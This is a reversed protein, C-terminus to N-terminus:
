VSKPEEARSMSILRFRTKRQQLIRVRSRERFANRIISAIVALVAAALCSLAAMTTFGMTLAQVPVEARDLMRVDGHETPMLGEIKRRGSLLSANIDSSIQKDRTVSLLEREAAAISKRRGEVQALNRQLDAIQRNVAVMSPHQDLFRSSLELRKQEADALKSQLGQAQQSLSRSEEALDATGYRRLVQDYRNDLQRLRQQSEELQRDYLSMVKSADDSKEALHQRMYETGIENLIRSLLEPNSGQLAVRIVNSQKGNEAVVLSHQLREVAQYVPLRRVTFQAGPRARSQSVLVRINGYRTAANVTQGVMGGIGIGTEKQTLAYRGGSVMTLVFPQKLLAGPVDFVAVRLRETGAGAEALAAPDADKRLDRDLIAGIVPLTKPEVVIDLQLRQVVRSLIARSRLIEMETTAPTDQQPSEAAAVSNRKLQIVASAEYLPTVTMAYLVGLAAVLLFVATMLGWNSFIGAAPYVAEQSEHEDRARISTTQLYRNM